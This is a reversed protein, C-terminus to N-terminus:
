AFHFAEVTSLHRRNAFADDNRVATVKYFVLTQNQKCLQNLISISIRTPKKKGKMEPGRNVFADTSSFTHIYM